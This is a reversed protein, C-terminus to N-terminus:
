RLPAGKDGNEARVKNRYSELVVDWNQRTQPLLTTKEPMRWTPRPFYDPASGCNAFDYVDEEKVAGPGQVLKYIRAWFIAGSGKSTEQGYFSSTSGTVYGGDTLEKLPKGYRLEIYQRLTCVPRAIYGMATDYSRFHETYKPKVELSVDDTYDWVDVEEVTDGVKKALKIINKLIFVSSSGKAASDRIRDELAKARQSSYEAEAVAEADAGYDDSDEPATSGFHKLYFMRSYFQNAKSTEQFIQAVDDVPDTPFADYPRETGGAWYSDDWGTRTNGLAEDITRQFATNVTTIMSPSGAAASLQHTVNLVYGYTSIGSYKSDFIVTPFGPVVYPNFALIAAGVRSEYRARYYEYQAYAYFLDGLGELQEQGMQTAAAIEAMVETNFTPGSETVTGETKALDTESVAGQANAADIEEDSRTDELNQTNEPDPTSMGKEPAYSVVGGSATTDSVPSPIGSDEPARNALINAAKTWGNYANTAVQKLGPHRDDKDSHPYRKQVEGQTLKKIKNATGAGYAYAFMVLQSGTILKAEDYLLDNQNLSSPSVGLVTCSNNMYAIGMAISMEGDHGDMQAGPFSGKVKTWMSPQTAPQVQLFGQAGTSSDRSSVNFRSEVYARAMIFMTPIGKGYLDRYKEVRPKAWRATDVAGMRKANRAVYATGGSGSGEKDQLANRYKDLLYLWPPASLHRSVPGRTFEEPWILFNKTNQNPDTNTIYQKMRSDVVPPYGTTLTSSVLSTANGSANGAILNALFQEGLYVRTPQNTYDEELSLSQIMSPFIVNCTPPLGFYCQPKIFNAAIVGFTTPTSRKGKFLDVMVGSATDAMAIPPAPISIVEMYMTGLVMKLLDWITGSPGISSGLQSQIAKMAETSQTAKIIPFCGEAEDILDKDIFPLGVFRRYLDRKTMYRAFFNRGPASAASQPIKNEPDSTANPDANDGDLDCLMAKFINRIFQYPTKIFDETAVNETDGKLDTANRRRPILGQMFLSAPYYLVATQFVSGDTANQQTLANVIDDVASIYYMNLQQLIQQTGVCMFRMSRGSASNSYAWGMIDFEGMFCFEPNLPNYHDDLYFVVVEVRDEYGLRALRPDPPMDITCTPIKNVGFDVFVTTVPVELGNMYVLWAAQHPYNVTYNSYSEPM